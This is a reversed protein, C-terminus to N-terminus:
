VMLMNSLSFKLEMSSEYLVGVGASELFGKEIAVRLFGLQGRRAPPIKRTQRRAPAIEPSIMFCFGEWAAEEFMVTELLSWTIVLSWDVPCVM